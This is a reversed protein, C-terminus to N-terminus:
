SGDELAAAGKIESIISWYRWYPLIIVKLGDIKEIREDDKSIVVATECKFRKMFKILPKLDKIKIKERIKIEVPILKEKSDIILDVEEKQPSRYFFRAKLIHAFHNELTSPYDLEGSRFATLFGTNSLYIRKLKKESTLKNRSFNYLRTILLSYDLYSVYNAVTRQDLKLDNGLNKYDLYMGPMGAIIQLLRYIVQPNNIVFSEPIDKFIVRELLSERFYKKLATDDFDIAEIFGGNKLYDEFLRIIEFKYLGERGTDISVNKYSVFEDFSFTEVCFEFFRGALSEKTEKKLILAASGSLFIKLNPYRDYIIKVKNCWDDLKQVEDLFLYIRDKEDLRQKLIDRQYQELIADLSLAQEDFSFYLVNFHDVEKKQLLFDIIQYLLTTKGARRLGFLIIIQRYDLFSAINDFLERKQGTFNKPVSLTKWWPNFDYLSM